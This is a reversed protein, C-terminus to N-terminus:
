PRAASAAFSISRSWCSNLAQCCRANSSWIRLYSGSELLNRLKGCYETLVDDLKATLNRCMESCFFNETDRIGCEHTVATMGKVASVFEAGYAAGSNTGLFRVLSWFGDAAALTNATSSIFIAELEARAASHGSLLAHGFLLLTDRFGETESSIPPDSQTPLLQSSLEGSM